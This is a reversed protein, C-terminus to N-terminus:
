ELRQLPEMWSIEVKWSQRTSAPITLTISYRGPKRCHRDLARAIRMAERSVAKPLPQQAPWRKQPGGEWPADEQPAGEWPAGEELAGAEPAGEGPASEEEPSLPEPEEM